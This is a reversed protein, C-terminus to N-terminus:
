NSFNNVENLIDIIQNQIENKNLNGDVIYLIGKKQYYDILPETDVIYENYRIDYTEDNDDNRKNLMINCNDCLNVNKPKLEDINNNYVKGCMPCSLRGSIRSKAIEKDLNILIVIGLNKGCLELAKEYLYAQAMNRPFGDLIYGNQCDSQAIRENVLELVLEDNVLNGDDITKKIIESYESNNSIKNRLLDGTSIHPIDYRNELLDAQTGKGAAPPAILIINKM